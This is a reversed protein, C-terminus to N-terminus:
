SRETAGSDIGEEIVAGTTPDDQKGSRWQAILEWESGAVGCM